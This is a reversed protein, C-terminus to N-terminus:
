LKQTNDSKENIKKFIAFTEDINLDIKERLANVRVNRKKHSFAISTTMITYLFANEILIKSFEKVNNLEFSSSKFNYRWNVKENDVIINLQKLKSLKLIM